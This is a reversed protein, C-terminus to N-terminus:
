PIKVTIVGLRSNASVGDDSFVGIITFTKDDVRKIMKKAHNRDSHIYYPLTVPDIGGPVVNTGSIMKRFFLAVGQPNIMLTATFGNNVQMVSDYLTSQLALSGVDTKNYSYNGGLTVGINDTIWASDLPANVNQGIFQINRSTNLTGATSAILSHMSFEDNAGTAGLKSVLTGAGSPRLHYQNGYLNAENFSANAVDFDRTVGCPTSGAVLSIAVGAGPNQIRDYLYFVTGDPLRKEHANRINFDFPRLGAASAFYNHFVNSDLSISSATVSFTAVQRRNTLDGNQLNSIEYVAFTLKGTAQNWSITRTNYSRISRNGITTQEAITASGVLTFEGNANRSVLHAIWSRTYCTGLAPSTNGIGSAVTGLYLDGTANRYAFGSNSVVVFLGNGLSRVLPCLAFENSGVPLQNTQPITAFLYPNGLTTVGNQTIVDQIFLKGSRNAGQTVLVARNADVTDWDSCAASHIIGDPNSVTVFAM